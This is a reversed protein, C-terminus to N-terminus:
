EKGLVVASYSGGTAFSTVLAYKLSGGDATTRTARGDASFSVAEDSGIDGHLMLAAHAAALAASGARGEGTRAKVSVVPVGPLLKAMAGREISDVADMGNAFGFVAGVDSASIGADSLAENIATELAPETGKLTGFKANKRGSGCGLVRCYAEAGRAKAEGDLELLLSASGDGMTFGSSASGHPIAGDRSVFGLADFLGEIIPINEDNGTALMAKEQGERIVNVAYAISTLGSLPGSTVTVSYGKMGSCISLYGGAANYVTNPFKFASGKANGKEAILEEFDYTSGLAGESTGVICGIDKANGETVAFKGDKLARLGSVVQLQSFNDLKRSFAMKVGLEDYDGQAIKSRMGAADAKAGAKVAGVYAEKSNGLACVIGIGTVAIDAKGDGCRVDGAGKSFVISANNGGFAFSNSMVCDLKKGHPVNQVFDLAGAKERLAAKDEDSYGLTPLVTDTTLAKISFVAEIAGAAGLCHGTMAKTSSVSLDAGTGDFVTHLSLFEANDNKATGTGHGNVYGIDKPEIGSNSIARRIAEIQCLGDERPATIHHADSTIGAGLVECYVRANRAKAHAYSEVVVIGAGEGLTIGTCHNFPSCRNEDLAHLSLFGSYPISAFSDAGGAVVVDARGARILDCAYAVSITGAACANAVNTVVGGAGCFEAVQSAIPAIPMKLIDRRDRGHQHYHEISVAGGVCSGIIVSVRGDDSFRGFGADAMAEKAATICLKSARDFEDGPDIEGLTDCRVEAALDAYCGETDVTTTRHIGSVSGLANRWSEEVTNGIACIM